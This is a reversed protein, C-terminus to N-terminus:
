FIYKCQWKVTSKEANADIIRATHDSNWVEADRKIYGWQSNYETGLNSFTKPIDESAVGHKKAYNIDYDAIGNIAETLTHKHRM